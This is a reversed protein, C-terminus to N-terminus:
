KERGEERTSPSRHILERLTNEDWERKDFPVGDIEACMQNIVANWQADSEARQEARGLKIGEHLADMYVQQTNTMVNNLIDQVPNETM